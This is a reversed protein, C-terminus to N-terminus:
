RLKRATEDWAAESDQKYLRFATALRAMMEAAIAGFKPENVHDIDSRSHDIIGALKTSTKLTYHLPNGAIDPSKAAHQQMADEMSSQIVRIRVSPLRSPESIRRPDKWPKASPNPKFIDVDKAAVRFAVNEHLEEALKLWSRALTFLVIANASEAASNAMEICRAANDHCDKSNM